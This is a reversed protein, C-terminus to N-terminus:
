SVFLWKNNIVNLVYKFKYIIKNFHVAVKILMKVAISWFTVKNKTRNYNGM